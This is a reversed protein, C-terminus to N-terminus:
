GALGLFHKAIPPNKLALIAGAIGQSDVDLIGVSSPGGGPSRVVGGPNFFLVGDQRENCAQHTHGFVICQVPQGALVQLLYRRQDVFRHDGRLYRLRDATEALYSRDGHILGIQWHGASVVTKEPLFPLAKGDRNGRVAVVPAITRLRDLAAPTSIDGAHLILDVGRLLELIEAPLEATRDPVHTDSLVGIRM